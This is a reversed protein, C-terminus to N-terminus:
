TQGDIAFNVVVTGESLAELRIHLELRMAVAFNNQVQHTIESVCPNPRLARKSIAV